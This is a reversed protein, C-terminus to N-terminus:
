KEAMLQPYQKYLYTYIPQSILYSWSLSAM